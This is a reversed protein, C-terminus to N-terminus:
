NGRYGRRFLNIILYVVAFFSGGQVLDWLGMMFAEVKVPDSTILYTFKLLVWIFCGVIILFLIALLGSSVVIGFRLAGEIFETTRHQMHKQLDKFSKEELENSAAPKEEKPIQPESM